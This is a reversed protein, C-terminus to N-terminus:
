CSPRGNSSIPKNRQYITPFVKKPIKKLKSFIVPETSNSSKKETSNPSAANCEESIIFLKGVSNQTITYSSLGKKRSKLVQIGYMKRLISNIFTLSRKLFKGRDKEVKLTELNVKRVEFEYLFKDMHKELVPLMDRINTELVDDQVSNKDQICQFGCRYLIGVAFRHAQYPYSKRENSLDWAENADLNSNYDNMISDYKMLDYEKLKLLSEEITEGQTIAKLNDYVNKVIPKSYDKVFTPTIEPCNTYKTQLQHKKLANKDKTSVDEENDIQQHISIVEDLSLNKAKSVAECHADEIDNKISKYTDCYEESINVNSTPLINIAANTYKIQDIFRYMFSNKSLNKIRETELWLHFYDSKYFQISGDITHEFHLAPDTIQQYLGSRKDHLIHSIDETTVPLDHCSNFLRFCIFHEKTRLNRVRALM